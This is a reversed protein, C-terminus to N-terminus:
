IYKLAKKIIGPDKVVKESIKILDDPQSVRILNTVATMIKVATQQDGAEITITYTHKAM